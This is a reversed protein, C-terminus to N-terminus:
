SPPKDLLQLLLPYLIEPQVPKGLFETMGAALCAQRTETFVDATLAVIPVRQWQPLQRIARTAEIGDLEPMQLDLIAVPYLEARAMQLAREGDDAIQAALGARELLLIMLQQNIPDDDAVLINAGRHRARLQELADEHPATGPASEPPSAETPAQALPVTFWFCSGRGPQSQVGVKGGMLEILQRSIELGLGTGRRDPMVQSFAQFLGDLKDPAIGVGTDQVEIRLWVAGPPWPQAPEQSVRLTIRGQETFKVANSLLNLLVQEILAADGMLKRPLNPLKESILANNRQRAQPRVANMAGDLVETLSFPALEVTQQGAEIRSLDLVDSILRLLHQSSRVIQGLQEAQKADLGSQGLLYGYGLVANLPTRLEHSVKALFRTKAQN